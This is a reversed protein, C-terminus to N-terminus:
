SLEIIFAAPLPLSTPLKIVIQTAPLFLVYFKVEEMYSTTMMIRTIVRKGFFLVDSTM